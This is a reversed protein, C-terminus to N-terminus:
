ALEDKSSDDLRKTLDGEGNAIEQLMSKLAGIPRMITTLLWGALGAQLLIGILVIVLTQMIANRVDAAFEEDAAKMKKQMSDVVKDMGSEVKEVQADIKSDIERIEATIGDSSKLLPLMKGEFLTIIEQIAAKVD